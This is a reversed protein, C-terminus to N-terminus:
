LFLGTGRFYPHLGLYTQGCVNGVADLVSEALKGTRLDDHTHVHMGVDIRPEPTLEDLTQVIAQVSLDDEGTKHLGHVCQATNM